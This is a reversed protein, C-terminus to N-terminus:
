AAATAVGSGEVRQEKGPDFRHGPATFISGIGNHWLPFEKKTTKNQLRVKLHVGHHHNHM